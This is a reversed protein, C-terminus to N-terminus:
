QVVLSVAGASGGARVAGIDFLYEGGRPPSHPEFELESSGLSDGILRAHCISGAAQVAALDEGRIGPNPRNKRINKIFIPRGTVVSLVVATRLIQGGGEGYSGDIVLPNMFTM